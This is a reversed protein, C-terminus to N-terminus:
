TFTFYASLFSFFDYSLANSIHCPLARCPVTRCPLAFWILPFFLFACFLLLCIFHVPLLILDTLNEIPFDFLPFIIYEIRCFFLPSSLVSLSRLSSIIKRYLDDPIRCDNLDYFSVINGASRLPTRFMCTILQLRWITLDSPAALRLLYFVSLNLSKYPRM